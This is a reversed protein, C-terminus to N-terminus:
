RSVSKRAPWHFRLVGEADREAVASRYYAHLWAGLVLVGATIPILHTADLLYLM